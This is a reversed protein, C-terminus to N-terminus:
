RALDLLPTRQRPSLKLSKCTAATYVLSSGTACVSRTGYYDDALAEFNWMIRGNATLGPPPGGM